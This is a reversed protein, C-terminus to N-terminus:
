VEGAVCVACASPCFLLFVFSFVLSCRAECDLAGKGRWMKMDHLRVLLFLMVGSFAIRRLFDTVALSVWPYRLSHPLRLAAKTHTLM